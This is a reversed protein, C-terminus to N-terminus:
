DEDTDVDPEFQELSADGDMSENYEKDGRLTVKKNKRKALLEEYRTINPEVDAIIKSIKNSLTSIDIVNGEADKFDSRSMDTFTDIYSNLSKAMIRLIKVVGQIADNIVDSEINDKVYKVIEKNNPPFRFDKPFVCQSISYKHAEDFSLGNSICYGSSNTMFDIYRFYQKSLFKMDSTDRKYIQALKPYKLLEEVNLELELDKGIEWLHIM